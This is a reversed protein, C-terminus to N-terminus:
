KEDSEVVGFVNKAFRAFMPTFQPAKELNFRMWFPTILALSIGHTMDNYSSLEHGLSHVPFAGFQKGSMFQFGGLAMSSAWM